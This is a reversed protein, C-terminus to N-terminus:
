IGVGTFRARAKKFLFHYAAGMIAIWAIQLVFIKLTEQVTYFGLFIMPTVFGMYPFPTMMLVSMVGSSFLTLPFMGGSMLWSLGDKIGRTGFYGKTWFSSLGFLISYMFNLTLGLIGSIVALGAFTASEIRFGFFFYSVVAVPIMHFILANTRRGLETSLHMMLFNVPKIMEASLSGDLISENIRLDVGVWNDLVAQVVYYTVMQSITLGGLVAAGSHTYVTTWIFYMISIYLPQLITWIAYGFRYAFANLFNIKYLATYKRIESVIEM